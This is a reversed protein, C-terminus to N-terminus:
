PRQWGRSLQGCSSGCTHFIPHQPGRHGRHPLDAPDAAPCREQWQLRPETAPRSCGRDTGSSRSLVTCRASRPSCGCSCPVHPAPPDTTIMRCRRAAMPRCSHDRCTANHRLDARATHTKEVTPPPVTATCWRMDTARRVRAQSGEGSWWCRDWSHGLGHARPRRLADAPCRMVQPRQGPEWGNRGHAVECSGPPGSHLAGVLGVIAATRALM